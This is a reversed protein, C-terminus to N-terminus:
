ASIIEKDPNASEESRFIALEDLICALLTFGRISRYSATKIMINVGNNLEIEETLERKVM